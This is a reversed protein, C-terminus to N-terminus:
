EITQRYLIASRFDGPSKFDFGYLKLRDVLFFGRMRSKQGNASTLEPGLIDYALLPLQNAMSIDGERTVEFFGITIWVAYQHTRVTTLNMAKQLMESRFYPHQRQDVQLPTAGSARVTNPGLYPNPVGSPLGAWFLNVVSRTVLTGLLPPLAGAAVQATVPRLKNIYADGRESANSASKTDPPQFLRRLPIAPPVQVQTSPNSVPGTPPTGPTGPVYTNYGQYLMPNRVGPDGTYNGSYTPPWKTAPTKPAPDTFPSPPLAAPRMVTYDIDPYSLSHFPRDAPIPSTLPAPANPNAPATHVAQNSGAQGSGYGFIFGSGGHRVTLFQAFAAKMRNSILGTLPDTGIVGVNNVPYVYTPAGAVNTATVVLPIPSSGADLPGAWAGGSYLKGGFTVNIPLQNFNLLQQNFSNDQDGFVSFFSEEDIMLNLNLLGPRSDQRAWDFNVGQAVPGIAGLSNSPVEFFEFMKFWGDGSFDGFTATTPPTTPSGATYFFKDVLYPFTHPVVPYVPTPSTSPAPFAPSSGAAIFPSTANQYSAPLASPVPPSIQPRVQSFVSTVSASSPAFEAFQKTFLGPPCGPVMLLEAVSTFDRDNFPFYDWAEYLSVPTTSTNVTGDNPAGLTHYFQQTIKIPKKNSDQGFVGYNGSATRPAAIQETYGYRPDLSSPVGPLPVAHGGRFPQLRQYSYLQNGGQTATDPNGPTGKGGGEIFPFRMADVVIMPNTASVPAFPNAPRRLCVWYFQATGNSTAVTAPLKQPYTVSPTGGITLPPLVGPPLTTTPPTASYDVPDYTSNFVYNPTYPTLETQVSSDSPPLPGGITTFYYPAVQTKTADGIFYNTATGGTTPPAQPLPFIVPDGLPTPSNPTNFSAQAFPVLGYYKGGPQLHGAIPDPRSIPDDATFIMDWCAGGWPTTPPTSGGSLFGALDIVSANNTPSGLGPKATTGLEPATLTNVLEMFFRPTPTAKNQYKRQFSYTFVENIAIPNYEMGYQDLPVDTTTSRNAVPVLYPSASATGVRLWVDPNRWHTMTGDPDRFDIINIVFQSLQALEEPTDVSRPPLIAKLTYYTDNIWKQRIPENPDNSVPLPYNLNIKKDGQALSAAPLGATAYGGNANLVFRSNNPFVNGPNDNTWAFNNLEWSDLAYLRRRRLADAASAIGGRFSIPALKGLRSSLSTGDVDQLRYLWELDSFGFPSDLQANPQYLNMEDADNLGDSGRNVVSDYTGMTAPLYSYNANGNTDILTGGVRHPRLGGGYNLNPFRYSEFGHLPNNNNLLSNGTTNSVMTMPYVANAAWPFLVAGTSVDVTGPLGPPRFYSSFQVRGWHDGGLDKGTSTSTGNWQVVRGSGNIDVPTVFRRMREVPVMLAGAVDYYDADHVEGTIRPPFPDFTNYNDDAADRPVTNIIDQPDMSYGARIPNNYNNGLLNMVRGNAPNIIPYGPVSQAEGWRGPIAETSRMVLGNVPPNAGSTDTDAIDVQGNPLYFPIPNGLSDAGMSVWNADGNFKSIPPSPSYPLSTPNYDNDFTRTGALLNRLQTLRVDIGAGFDAQGYAGSQSFMNQLGYTPDVESVSNGLHTAHTAGGGALNGATNLPIRGNLGIVLFAFLPKYLQGSANRRAPYGLDLWVSDTLGDADNDVDYTIQGGVDPILDRFTAADHGDIRRPRLVRSIADPTQLEWDNFGNIPDYRVAAPRHFSPMVIRGDGSQIALFWNELDCADYDEDMGVTSPVGPFATSPNGTILGGNFRFNGYVAHTTMGPGNFAHLWRGDLIFQATAGLNAHSTAANVLYNGPLETSTGATPNHLATTADYAPINVRFVIPNGSSALYGNSRKNVPLVEFTQHIAGTVGSNLAGSYAVRLRWRTFDYGYIAPDNHIINTTLDYLTGSVHTVQTIYFFSYNYPSVGAGGPRFELYGNSFADNGYMDRALSHGRIASRVDATDSILQSLAFDMLEDAQPAITSQAFNRASVRSQGSFTAFTVGILAMLGLMSLILVLVIGRRQRDRRRTALM